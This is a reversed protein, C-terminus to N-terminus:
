SASTAQQGLQGLQLYKSFPRDQNGTKVGYNIGFTNASRDYVGQFGQLANQINSAQLAQQFRGNLLTGKAAASNQGIRNAENLAFQLGPSNLADQESPPTFESMPTVFSGAGGFGYPNAGGISGLGGGGTPAGGPGAIQDWAKQNQGSGAGHIVDFASGDALQIKGPLGAANKILTIGHAKLDAEHALLDQPSLSTGPFISDFYARPDQGGGASPPMNNGGIQGATPPPPIVQDQGAGALPNGNADMAGSAVVGGGGNIGTNASAQSPDFGRSPQLATQFQTWDFAGYSPGAM